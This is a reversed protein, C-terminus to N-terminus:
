NFDSHWHRLKPTDFDWLKMLYLTLYHM